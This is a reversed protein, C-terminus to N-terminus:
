KRHGKRRALNRRQINRVIKHIMNWYRSYGCKGYQFQHWYKRLYGSPSVGKMRAEARILELVYKRLM